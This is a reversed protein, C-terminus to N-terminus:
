AAPTGGDSLPEVVLFYIDVTKDGPNFITHPGPTLYRLEFPDRIRQAGLEPVLGDIAGEVMRLEGTQAPDFFPLYRLDADPEFVFTDFPALELRQLTMTAVKNPLSAIPEATEFTVFSVDNPVTALVANDVPGVTGYLTLASVTGPNRGTAGDTASYIITENQGISVSEGDRVEVPPQGSQNAPYFLAPGAPTVTLTGSLVTLSLPGDVSTYWPVDTTFSTAPAVNFLGLEMHDWTTADPMDWILPSFEFRAISQISPKAIVAAPIPPAESTKPVSQYIVLLSAVMMIALVALAGQLPFSRHSRPASGIREPWRRTADASPGIVEPMRTSETLLPRYSAVLRKELDDFFAPSPLSVTELAHMRRLLAVDAPDLEPSVTRDHRVVADWGANM